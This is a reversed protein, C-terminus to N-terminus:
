NPHSIFFHSKRLDLFPQFHGVFSSSIVNTNCGDDKVVTVLDGNLTGNLTRLDEIPVCQQNKIQKKYNRVCIGM